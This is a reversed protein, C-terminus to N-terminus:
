SLASLARRRWLLLCSALPLFPDHPGEFTYIGDFGAAELERGTEIADMPNSVLMSADIKM